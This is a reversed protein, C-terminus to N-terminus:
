EAKIVVGGTSKVVFRPIIVNAIYLSLTYGSQLSLISTYTLVLSVVLLLAMSKPVILQLVDNSGVSFVSPQYSYRITIGLFKLVTLFKIM